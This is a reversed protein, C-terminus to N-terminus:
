NHGGDEDVRGGLDVGRGLQTGVHADARAGDNPSACADLLGNDELVGLDLVVGTDEVGDDAPAAADTGPGTHLARGSGDAAVGGADDLVADLDLADGDEPLVTHDAVLDTHLVAHAQRILLQLPHTV